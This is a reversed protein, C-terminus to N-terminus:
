LYIVLICKFFSTASLKLVSFYKNNTMFIVNIQAIIKGIYTLIVYNFLISFFQQGIILKASEGLSWGVTTM